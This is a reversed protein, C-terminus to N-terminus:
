QSMCNFTRYNDNNRLCGAAAEGFASLPSRAVETDWLSVELDMTGWNASDEDFARHNLKCTLSAYGSAVPDCTSWPNSGF